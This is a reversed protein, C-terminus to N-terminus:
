LKETANGFARRKSTYGRQELAQEAALAGNLAQYSSVRETHFVGGDPVRTIEVWTEGVSDVYVRAQTGNVHTLYNLDGSYPWWQGVYTLSLTSM